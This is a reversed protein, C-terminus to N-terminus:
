VKQAYLMRYSPWQQIERLEYVAGNIVLRDWQNLTLDSYLAGQLIEQSREGQEAQVAGSQMKGRARNQGARQWCVADASGAAVVVDPHEMDFVAAQEGYADAALRRRHVTYGSRRWDWGWRSLM